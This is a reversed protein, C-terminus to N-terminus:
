EPIYAELNTVVKPDLAVYLADVAEDIMVAQEETLEGQYKELLLTLYKQIEEAKGQIDKNVIGHGM